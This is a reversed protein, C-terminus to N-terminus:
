SKPEIHNEMENEWLPKQFELIGLGLRRIKGIKKQFLGWISGTRRYLWGIKLVTTISLNEILNLTLELRRKLFFDQVFNEIVVKFNFSM